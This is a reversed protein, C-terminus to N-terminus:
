TVSALSGGEEILEVPIVNLVWEENWTRGRCCLHLLQRGAVM